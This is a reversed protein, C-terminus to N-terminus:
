LKPLVCHPQIDNGEGGDVEDDFDVNDGKQNVCHRQVNGPKKFPCLQGFKKNVRKRISFGQISQHLTLDLRDHEVGVVGPVKTHLNPFKPVRTSEATSVVCLNVVPPSYQLPLERVVTLVVPWGDKM